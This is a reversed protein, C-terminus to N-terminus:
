LCGDDGHNVQVASGSRREYTQILRVGEGGEAYKSLVLEQNFTAGLEEYNLGSCINTGDIEFFIAM